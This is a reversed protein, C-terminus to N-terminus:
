KATDEMYDNSFFHRAVKIEPRYFGNVLKNIRVDDINSFLRIQSDSSLNKRVDCVISLAIGVKMDGGAFIIELPQLLRQSLRSYEEPTLGEIYRELYPTQPMHMEVLSLWATDCFRSDNFNFRYVTGGFRSSTKKLTTGAELSFFVFDDNGLILIDGLTSHGKDFIIDRDVLKQRSFLSVTGNDGKVPADTYHTAFFPAALFYEIFQRELDNLSGLEKYLRRLNTKSIDYLHHHAQSLPVDNWIEGREIMRCNSKDTTLRRFANVIRRAAVDETLMADHAGAVSRDLPHSLVTSSKRHSQPVTKLSMCNTMFIIKVNEFMLLRLPLEPLIVTQDMEILTPTPLKAQYAERLTSAVKKRQEIETEPTNWEWAELTVEFYQRRVSKDSNEFSVASTDPPLLVKLTKPLPPLPAMPLTFGSLDLRIAESEYAAMLKNKFVLAQLQGGADVYQFWKEIADGYSEEQTNSPGMIALHSSFPTIGIGNIM